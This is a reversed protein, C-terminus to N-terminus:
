AYECPCTDTVRVVMSQSTDYCTYTRDMKEGYNDEVWAQNCKVEYCSSCPRPPRRCCCCCTFM